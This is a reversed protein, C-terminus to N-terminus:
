SFESKKFESLVDNLATELIEEIERSTRGECLGAIRVPVSMLRGRLASATKEADAEVDARELLDGKKMRYEIEKLKAQFTKEALRAKNFAEAVNKVRSPAALQVPEDKAAENAEEESAADILAQVEDFATEIPIKGDADPTIKGEKIRRQVWSHPKDIQRAFERISLSSQATTRATKESKEKSKVTSM